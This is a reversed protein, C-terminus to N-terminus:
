VVEYGLDQLAKETIKLARRVSKSCPLFESEKLM